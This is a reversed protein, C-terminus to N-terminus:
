PSTILEPATASNTGMELYDCVHFMHHLLAPPGQVLSWGSTLLLLLGYFGIVMM